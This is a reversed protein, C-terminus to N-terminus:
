KGKSFGLGEVGLRAWIIEIEPPVIFYHPIRSAGNRVSPPLSFSSPEHDAM